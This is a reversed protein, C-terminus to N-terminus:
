GFFFVFVIAVEYFPFLTLYSLFKFTVKVMQITGVHLHDRHLFWVVAIPICKVTCFLTPLFFQLFDLFGLIESDMIDFSPEHALM